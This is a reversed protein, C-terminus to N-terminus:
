RLTLGLWALGVGGIMTIGLYGIAWRPRSRWLEIIEVMLTSFTTLSGLAAVGALTRSTDSSGTLWGLAFSGVLNAVLTGVPPPLSLSLRWRGLTGAAAAVLFALGITM